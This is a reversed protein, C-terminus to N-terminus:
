PSRHHSEQLEDVRRTVRAHYVGRDFGWLYGLYGGVLIGIALILEISM